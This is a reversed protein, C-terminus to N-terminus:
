AAAKAGGKRITIYLATVTISLFALNFALHPGWSLHELIGGCSCPVYEFFHFLTLGVYGSFLFLLIGSLQLGWVLTRQFMLLVAILIELPPLLYILLSQVFTPLAQNRMEWTFHRFDLLKSLAAYIWLVILLFTAVTLAIEQRGETNKVM